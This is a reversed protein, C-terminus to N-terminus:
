TEFEAFSTLLIDHTHWGDEDKYDNKLIFIAQQFATDYDKAEVKFLCHQVNVQRSLIEHPKAVIGSAIFTQKENMGIYMWKVKYLIFTKISVLWLM